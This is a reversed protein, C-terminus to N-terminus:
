LSQSSDEPDSHLGALENSLESLADQLENVKRQLESVRAQLEEIKVNQEQIKKDKEAIQSDRESLSLILDSITRDKVGRDTNFSKQLAVVEADLTGAATTRVEYPTQQEEKFSLNRYRRHDRIWFIIIGPLGIAGLVSLVFDYVDRM